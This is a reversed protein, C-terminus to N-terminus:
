TTPEKNALTARAFDVAPNTRPNCYELLRELAETLERIRSSQAAETTLRHRAFAEIMAHMDLEGDMNRCAENACAFARDEDTQAVVVEGETM